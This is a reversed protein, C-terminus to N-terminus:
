EELCRSDGINGVPSYLRRGNTLTGDVNASAEDPYSFAKCGHDLYVRIDPAFEVDRHAFIGGKAVSATGAILCKFSFIAPSIRM